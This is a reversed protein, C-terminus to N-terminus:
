SVATKVQVDPFQPSNKTLTSHPFEALPSKMAQGQEEEEEREM